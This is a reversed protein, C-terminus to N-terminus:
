SSASTWLLRADDEKESYSPGCSLRVIQQALEDNHTRGVHSPSRYTSQIGVHTHVTLSYSSRCVRLAVHSDLFEVTIRRVVMHMSRLIADTMGRVNRDETGGWADISSRSM